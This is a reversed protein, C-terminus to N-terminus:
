RKRGTFGKRLNSPIRSQRQFLAQNIRILRTLRARLVKLQLGLVIKQKKDRTKAVQQQFRAFKKRIHAIRVKLIRRQEGPALKKYLRAPHSIGSAPRSARQLKVVPAGQEDAGLGCTPALALWSTVFLRFMMSKM